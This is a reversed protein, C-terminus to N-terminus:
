RPSLALIFYERSTAPLIPRSVVPDIKFLRLSYSYNNVDFVFILGFTYFISHLSVIFHLFIQVLQKNPSKLTYLFGRELVIQKDCLM